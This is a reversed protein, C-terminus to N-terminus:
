VTEVAALVPVSLHTVVNAVGIAVSALRSPSHCLPTPLARVWPRATSITTITSISDVRAGCHSPWLVMAVGQGGVPRGTCTARAIPRVCRFRPRDEIHWPAAAIRYVQTTFDYRVLQRLGLNPLPCRETLVPNPQVIIIM